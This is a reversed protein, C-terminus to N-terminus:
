QGRGRRLHLTKKEQPQHASWAEFSAGAAGGDKLYAEWEDLSATDPFYIRNHSAPPMIQLHCWPTPERKQERAKAYARLVTGAPHEMWVQHQELVHANVFCWWAFQGDPLDAVDGAWAKMHNSAKGSNATADNVAQPRWGSSYRGPLVIATAGEFASAVACIRRHTEAANAELADKAQEYEEAATLRRDTEDPGTWFSELTPLM